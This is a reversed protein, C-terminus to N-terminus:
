TLKLSKKFWTEVVPVFRDAYDILLQHGADQMLYFDKPCKLRDYVKKCHKSSVLQDYEGVAILVPTTMGDIPKEPKYTFVSRYSKFKYYWVAFPDNRKKDLFEPDKYANEWNFAKELPFYFNPIISCIPSKLLKVKLNLSFESSLLINHCVVSKVREDKLATYFAIEGGQSTGILGINGTYKDTIYSIATSINEILEAMTFVGRKGGSRGHGMFDLAVITFGKEQLKSCFERYYRGYSGTGPALILVAADKNSCEYIDAYLNISNYKIKVTKSNKM